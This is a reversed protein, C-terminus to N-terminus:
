LKFSLYVKHSTKTVDAIPNLTELVFYNYSNIFNKLDYIADDDFVVLEYKQPSKFIFKIELFLRLIIFIRKM